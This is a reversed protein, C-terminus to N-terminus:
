VTCAFFGVWSLFSIGESRKVGARDGALVSWAAAGKGALADTPLLFKARYLSAKSLMMIEMHLYVGHRFSSACTYNHIPFDLCFFFGMSLCFLPVWSLRDIASFSRTLNWDWRCGTAFRPARIKVIKNSRVRSYWYKCLCSVRPHLRVLYSRFRAVSHPTPHPLSPFHYM